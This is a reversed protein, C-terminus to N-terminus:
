KGLCQRTDLGLSVFLMFRTPPSWQLLWFKVVVQVTEISSDTVKSHFSYTTSLELKRVSKKQLFDGDNKIAVM